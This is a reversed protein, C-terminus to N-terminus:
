LNYKEFYKQSLFETPNYFKWGEEEEMVGGAVNATSGVVVRATKGEVLQEMVNKGATEKLEAKSTELIANRFEERKGYDYGRAFNLLGKSHPPVM